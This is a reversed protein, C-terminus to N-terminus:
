PLQKYPQLVICIGFCATGANSTTWEYQKGVSIVSANLRRRANGKLVMMVAVARRAKDYSTKEACWTKKIVYRLLQRLSVIRHGGAQHVLQDLQEADATIVEAAAAEALLPTINIHLLHTVAAAPNGLVTFVPHQTARDWVNGSPPAM